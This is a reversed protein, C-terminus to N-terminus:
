QAPGLGLRERRYAGSSVRRCWEPNAIYWEVTKRLGHDFSYEARWGLEDELASPDVAYRRDHGPRDTVFTILETYSKITAKSGLNPNRQPPVLEDLLGCIARVIDINRRESRGGVNFTRGPAARSLVTVIARCHDEVFLWDRINQGDGYVPLAKGELANLVMLPILKEPFQYRGYNNSCNTVLTPLGYTAYM